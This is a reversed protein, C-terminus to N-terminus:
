HLCGCEKMDTRLSDLEPRKAALTEFEKIAADALGKGEAVRGVAKLVSALECRGFLSAQIYSAHYPYTQRLKETIGIASELEQIAEDFRGQDRLTSALFRHTEAREFPYHLQDPGRELCEQNVDLANRFAAEAEGSQNSQRAIIGLLCWSRYLNNLYLPKSNPGEVLGTSIEKTRLAHREARELRGLGCFHSGLIYEQFAVADRFDLNEPVDRSLSEIVEMADLLDDTARETQGMMGSLTGRASLARFKELRFRNALRHHRPLASLSVIANTFCKRAEEHNAAGKMAQFSRGAHFHAVGLWYHLEPDMAGSPLKRIAREYAQVNGVFYAHSRASGLPISESLNEAALTRASLLERMGELGAEARQRLQSERLNVSILFAVFVAAFMTSVLASLALALKHRSAFKSALYRLSPRQAWIPKCDIWRRLDDALDLATAYRRAPELELAKLIITELDRPIAKNYRAPGRIPRSESDGTLGEARQLTALEYLTAGLSYIDTRHDIPLPESSCREPSAYGPTGGTPRSLQTTESDKLVALGFDTLWITGQHDLLLNGPKVDGHIVGHVHAHHLAEAIEAGVRAVARLYTIGLGESATRRAVTRSQECEITARHDLSDRPEDASNARLRAQALRGFNFSHSADISNDAETSVAM